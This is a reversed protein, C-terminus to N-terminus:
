INKKRFLKVNVAEEFPRPFYDQRHSSQDVLPFLKGELNTESRCGWLFCSVILVIASSILVFTVATKLFMNLDNTKGGSFVLCM